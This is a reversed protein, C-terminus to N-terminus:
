ALREKRVGTRDFFMEDYEEDQYFTTLVHLNPHKQIGSFKDLEEASLSVKYLYKEFNKRLSVTDELKKRLKYGTTKQHNKIIKQLEVKKM